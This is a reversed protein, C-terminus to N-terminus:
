GLEGSRRGPEKAYTRPSTRRHGRERNMVRDFADFDTRTARREFEEATALASVKEAVAMAIFQNASTGEDRALRDVASRLSAPLRLPFTPVRRANSALIKPPEDRRPETM